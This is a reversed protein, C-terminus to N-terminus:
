REYMQNRQTSQLFDEFTRYKSGFAHSGGIKLLADDETKQALISNIQQVQEKSLERNSLEFLIESAIPLTPAYGARGVGFGQWHYKPNLNRLKNLLSKIQQRKQQQQKKKMPNVTKPGVSQQQEKKQMPNKKQDNTKKEYANMSNKNRNHNKFAIMPNIMQANTQNQPPYVSQLQVQKEKMRNEIQLYNRVNTEQKLKNIIKENYGFYDFNTPFQLESGNYRRFRRFRGFSLKPSVKKTDKIEFYQERIMSIPGSLLRLRPLDVLFENINQTHTNGSYIIINRLSKNEEDCSKFRGKSDDFKRFIRSITQIDYFVVTNLSYADELFFYLFILDKPNDLFYDPDINDLQKAFKKDMSKYQLIYNETYNKRKKKQLYQYYGIPSLMHFFFGVYFKSDLEDIKELLETKDNCELDYMLELYYMMYGLVSEFFEEVKGSYSNNSNLAQEYYKRDQQSLNTDQSLIKQYVHNKKLIGEKEILIFMKWFKMRIEKKNIIKEIDLNYIFAGVTYIFGNSKVFSNGIKELYSLLYIISSYFGEFGLRTDTEHVRFGKLERKGEFLERLLNMTDISSNQVSGLDTLNKNQFYKYQDTYAHEFVFDLCSNLHSNKKILNNLFDIFHYFGKDTTYHQEGINLINKGPSNSNQGKYNEYYSMSLLSQYKINDPLSKLNLYQNVINNKKIQQKKQKQQKQQKQKRQENQKFKKMQNQTFNKGYKMNNLYLKKRKKVNVSDSPFDEPQM